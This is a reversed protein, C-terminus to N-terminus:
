NIHQLSCVPKSMNALSHSCLIRGEQIPQDEIVISACNSAYAAAVAATHKCQVTVHLWHRETSATTHQHMLQETLAHGTCCQSRCLHMSHRCCAYSFICSSHATVADSLLVSYGQHDSLSNYMHLSCSLVTVAAAASNHEASACVHQKYVLLVAAHVLVALNYDLTNSSAANTLQM